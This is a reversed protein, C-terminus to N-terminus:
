FASVFVLPIRVDSLQLYRKDISLDDEVNILSMSLWKEKRTNFLTNEFLVWAMLVLAVAGYFVAEYRCIKKAFKLQLGLLRHM